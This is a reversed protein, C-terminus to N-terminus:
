RGPSGGSLIGRIARETLVSSGRQLAVFRVVGAMNTSFRSMSDRGANGKHSAQVNLVRRLGRDVDDLFRCRIQRAHDSLDFRNLRVLATVNGVSDRPLGTATTPLSVNGPMTASATNSTMVAVLVTSLRGRRSEDVARVEDGVSCWSCHQDVASNPPLNQGFGWLSARLGWSRPQHWLEEPPKPQRTRRLIPISPRAVRFHSSVRM